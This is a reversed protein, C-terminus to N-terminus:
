RPKRRIALALVLATAVLALWVGLLAPSRGFGDMALGVLAPVGGFGIHAVVFYGATARAREQGAAEAAAALGGMYVLGYTAAGTLMAGVPLPWLVGFAAGWFVLGAGLCLCGLGVVVARRPAVRRLMLQLCAGTLMMVCAAWPGAGPFGQAALAAPVATLVTGTVGWAPMIALTTALTGPPFAPLRLRAGRPAALTEPLLAVPWALLALVALHLPFTFPLLEGPHWLLALMTALGGLGFSGATGVAVVAAGRRAAEPTGGALEAAWAAGAATICGMALGQFVRALALGPVSPELALVLTSCGALVMGLLVVPRRGIRDPLPGLFPSTLMHALAYCSFALALAGAGYGGRAAYAVYLPLPLTTALGASGVAAGVLWARRQPLSM